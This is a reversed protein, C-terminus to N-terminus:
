AIQDPYPDLLKLRASEILIGCRGIKELSIARM